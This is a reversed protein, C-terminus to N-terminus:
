LNGWFRRFDWKSGFKIYTIPKYFNLPEAASIIRNRQVIKSRLQKYIM